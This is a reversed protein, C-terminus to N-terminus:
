LHSPLGQCFGDIQVLTFYQKKNRGSSIQLIKMYKWRSYTCILTNLIKIKNPDLTNQYWCFERMLNELTKHGWWTRSAFVMRCTQAKWKRGGWKSTNRLIKVLYPNPFNEWTKSAKSTSRNMRFIHAIEWVLYFPFLLLVKSRSCQSLSQQQLSLHWGPVHPQSAVTRWGGWLTNRRLLASAAKLCKQGSDPMLSAFGPSMHIRMQIKRSWKQPQWEETVSHRQQKVM